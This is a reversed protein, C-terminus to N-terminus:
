GKKAQKKKSKKKGVQQAFDALWKRFQDSCNDITEQSVHVAELRTQTEDLTVLEAAGVALELIKEILQLRQRYSLAELRTVPFEVFGGTRFSMLIFPKMFTIWLDDSAKKFVEEDDSALQGKVLRLLEKRNEKGTFEPVLQDSSSLSSSSSSSAGMVQASFVLLLSLSLLKNTNM